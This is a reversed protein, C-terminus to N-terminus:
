RVWWAGLGSRAQPVVDGARQVVVSDGVLLGLGRASAANHLSARTVTVGGVDVAALEAVPVLAGTRGLQWSVGTLTTVAELAPFKWAVAWRPAAPGDGLAARATLADAKIVAGDVAHGLTARRAMWAEAADLAAAFTPVTGADAPVGVGAAALWALSGSQADPAGPTSLFPQSRIASPNTPPHPSLKARWPRGQPGHLGMGRGWGAGAGECEGGKM